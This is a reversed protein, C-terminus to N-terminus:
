LAELGTVTEAVELLFVEIAARTEELFAEDREVRQVHLSMKEPLRPDYSVFDCWSRGTCEMQWQMQSFYKKEIKGGLLNKIHTATNPCKIEVLGDNGVLGDPSAGSMYITPHPVFGIEQIFLDERREYADRAYPEQETGWAMAANTFQEYAEGTLREAVLEALYNTRSASPGSKTKALVDGVKSATVKGLRVTFWEETRQEM